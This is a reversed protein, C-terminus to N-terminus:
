PENQGAGVRHPIGLLFLAHQSDTEDHRQLMDFREARKGFASEPCLTDLLTHLKERAEQKATAIEAPENPLDWDNFQPPRLDVALATVKRLSQKLAILGAQLVVAGVGKPAAPTREWVCLFAVGTDLGVGFRAPFQDLLARVLMIDRDSVEDATSLFDDARCFRPPCLGNRLCGGNTGWQPRLRPVGRTRTYPPRASSKRANCNSPSPEWRHLFRAPACRIAIMRGSPTILATTGGTRAPRPLSISCRGRRMARVFRRGCCSPSRGCNPHLCSGNAFSTARCAAAKWSPSGRM